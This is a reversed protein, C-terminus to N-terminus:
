REFYVGFWALLLALADTFNHGADAVLALSHARLGAAAEVVVFAATLGLSWILVNGADHTHNHEHM